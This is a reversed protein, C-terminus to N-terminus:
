WGSTEGILRIENEQVPHLSPRSYTKKRSERWNGREVIRAVGSAGGCLLFVIILVSSNPADVDSM